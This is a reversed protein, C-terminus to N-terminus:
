FTKAGNSYEAEISEVLRRRGPFERAVMKTMIGGESNTFLV